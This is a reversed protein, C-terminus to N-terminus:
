AQSRIAELIDMASRHSIAGHRASEVRPALYQELAELGDDIESDFLARELVYQKITKGAQAAIM